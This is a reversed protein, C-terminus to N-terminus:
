KQVEELAAVKRNIAFFVNGKMDNRFINYSEEVFLFLHTVINRKKCVHNWPNSKQPSFKWRFLHVCITSRSYLLSLVHISHMIIISLSFLMEFLFMRKAIREPIGKRSKYEKRCGNEADNKCTLDSTNLLLLWICEFVPLLICWPHCHTVVGITCYGNYEM